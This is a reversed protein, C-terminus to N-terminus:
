FHYEILGKVIFFSKYVDDIRGAELDALRGLHENFLRHRSDGSLFDDTLSNLTYVLEHYYDRIEPAVFILGEELHEQIQWLVKTINADNRM